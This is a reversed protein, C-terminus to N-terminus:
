IENEPTPKPEKDYFSSYIVSGSLIGIILTFSLWVPVEIHFIFHLLIKIGIFILVLSVGEQVYDFKDKAKQLIFYLPRLGLIAFINSSYVILKDTTIALVAPISDVAFMIDSLGILLVALSLKTFYRSGNKYMVYKDNSEENTFRLYKSLWQELKGLKEQEDDDEETTFFIKIGTYLLFVAFLALVWEFRHVLGIGIFIFVIRFIIALFIGITLVREINKPKVQLTAFVLIFVFLNDISLSMETFYAILYNLAGEKQYQTYLFVFYGLAISAWLSYQIVSSKLPPPTYNDKPKGFAGLDIVVSILLVVTFLLYSLQIISM